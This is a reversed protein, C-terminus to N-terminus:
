KLTLENYEFVSHVFHADEINQDAECRRINEYNERGRLVFKLPLM